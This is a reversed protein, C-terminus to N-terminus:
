IYFYPMGGPCINIGIKGKIIIKNEKNIKLSIKAWKWEICENDSPIEIQKIYKTQMGIIGTVCDDCEDDKTDGYSGYKIICHIENLNNKKIINIFQSDNELIYRGTIKVIFDDDKINYKKICDLIDKLEKIGINKTNIENNKTYFVEYGFDDLFTPGNTNNEIIIIKKDVIPETENILQTIARIYQYKRKEFFDELLCAVILFYIM